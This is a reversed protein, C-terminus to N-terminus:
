RMNVLVKAVQKQREGRKGELSFRLDNMGLGKLDEDKELAEM